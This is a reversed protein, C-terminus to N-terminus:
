KEMSRWVESTLDEARGVHVEGCQGVGQAGQAVPQHFGAVGDEESGGVGQHLFEQGGFAVQIQGGSQALQVVEVEEEKIVQSVQGLAGFILAARRPRFRTIELLWGSLLTGSRKRADGPRTQSGSGNRFSNAREKM